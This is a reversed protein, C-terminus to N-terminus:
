GIRVAEMYHIINGKEDPRTQITEIKYHHGMLNLVAGLQIQFDLKFTMDDDKFYIEHQHQLTYIM